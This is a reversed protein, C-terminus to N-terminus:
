LFQLYWSRGLNQHKGLCTELSLPDAGFSGPSDIEIIIDSHTEAEPTINKLNGGRIGVQSRNKVSQILILGMSNSEGALRFTAENAVSGRGILSKGPM